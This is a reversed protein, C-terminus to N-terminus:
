RQINSFVFYGCPSPSLFSSLQNKQINLFFISFLSLSLKLTRYICTKLISTGLSFHSAFLSATDAQYYQTLQHDM